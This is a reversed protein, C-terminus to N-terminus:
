QKQEAQQQVHQMWLGIADAETYGELIIAPIHKNFSNTAHNHQMGQKVAWQVGMWQVLEDVQITELEAPSNVLMETKLWELVAKGEIGLLTRVGRVRENHPHGNGNPQPTTPEVVTAQVSVPESVSKVLNGEEDTAEDLEDPTYVVTGTFIDPCYWRVGNSMARAFMMNRPFKKWTHANKGDLAGAAVADQKTFSREGVIEGNESFAIVCGNNDHQTVRYNYKGSRKVAAAMLHAGLTPKGNIIHIGCMSAITPFGLELGALVKVGCQAAEKTDSFFGSKALMASLRSLDDITRIAFHGMVKQPIIDSM